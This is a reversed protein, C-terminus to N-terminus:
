ASKRRQAIFGGVFGAVGTGVVAAIAAGVNGSWNYWAWIMGLALGFALGNMSAKM